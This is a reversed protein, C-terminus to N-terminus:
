ELRTLPLEVINVNMEQKDPCYKSFILCDGNIWRVSFKRLNKVTICM